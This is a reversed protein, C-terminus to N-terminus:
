LSRQETALAALIILLILGIVRVIEAGLTSDSFSEQYGPLILSHNNEVSIVGHLDISSKLAINSVDLREDDLITKIDTTDLVRVFNSLEKSWLTLDYGDNRRVPHSRLRGSLKIHTGEWNHFDQIEEFSLKTVPIAQETDIVNMFEISIATNESNMFVVGSIRLLNGRVIDRQYIANTNEDFIQIGRGSEDQIYALLRTDDLRDAGITVVGQVTVRRQIYVDFNEYINAIPTTAQAFLSISFFLFILSLIQSLASLKM